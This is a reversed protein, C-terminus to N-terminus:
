SWTMVMGYGAQLIALKGKKNQGKLSVRTRQAGPNSVWMKSSTPAQFSSPAHSLVRGSGQAENSISQGIGTLPQNIENHQQFANNAKTRNGPGNSVLYLEDRNSKPSEVRSRKSAKDSVTSIRRKKPVAEQVIVDGSKSQAWNKQEYTAIRHAPQTARPMWPPESSLAGSTSISPGFQSDLTTHGIQSDRVQVYTTIQNQQGLEDQSAPSGILKSL